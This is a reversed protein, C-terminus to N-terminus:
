VGLEHSSRIPLNRLRRYILGMTHVIMLAGVMPIPYAFVSLPFGLEITFM